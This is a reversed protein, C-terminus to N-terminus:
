IKYADKKRRFRLEGVKKQSLSGLTLTLIFAVVPIIVYVFAGVGIIWVLWDEIQPNGVYYLELMYTAFLAFYIGLNYALDMVDFDLQVMHGIDYILFFLLSGIVLIFIVVFLVIVFETPTSKGNGTVEFTYTFPTDTGDLDGHGYVNYIGLVETNCFSYTFTAGNKTMEVENLIITSNPYLVSVNVFSCTTCIQLINVCENQKFTGLETEMASITPLLILLFAIVFIVERGMRNNLNNCKFIKGKNM